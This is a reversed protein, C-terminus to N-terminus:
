NKFRSNKYQELQRLFGENPNVVKRITRVHELIRKLDQQQHQKLLYAICITSSRSVGAHCHIFVKGNHYLASRIFENTSKFYKSIEESPNDRVQIHLYTFQKPFYNPHEIACNIIHTIGLTKLQEYDNACLSDGLFLNPVIQHFSMKSVVFSFSLSLSTNIKRLFDIKCSIM